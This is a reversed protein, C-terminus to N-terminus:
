SLFKIYEEAIIDKGKNEFHIHDIHLIRSKWNNCLEIMKNNIDLFRVGSIKSVEAIIENKRKTVADIEWDFEEKWINRIPRPIYMKLRKFRSPIVAYFISLLIINGSYQKLFEVLHTLDEKYTVFDKNTYKEGLENINSHQGLQVFIADYYIQDSYFFAEVQKIFMFDHLGCSTGLMDVPIGCSKEFTSRVMRATSDGLLLIRRPYKSNAHSYWFNAWEVEERGSPSNHSIPFYSNVPKM